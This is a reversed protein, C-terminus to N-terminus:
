FAGGSKGYHNSLQAYNYATILAAIGAIVFSAWAWQGAAEIVVGLAIYIGGGVMGGAALAWSRIPGIKKNSDNM